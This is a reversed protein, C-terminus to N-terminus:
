TLAFDWGVSGRVRGRGPGEIRSKDQPPGLWNNFTIFSDHMHYSITEDLLIHRTHSLGYKLIKGSRTSTPQWGYLSVGMPILYGGNFSLRILLMEWKVAMFLKKCLYRYLVYSFEAWLSSCIYCSNGMVNVSFFYCQTPAPRLSKRSIKASFHGHIYAIHPFSLHTMAQWEVGGKLFNMKKSHVTHVPYGDVSTNEDSLVVQIVKSDTLHLKSHM